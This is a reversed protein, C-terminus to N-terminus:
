KRHIKVVPNKFRLDIYKAKEKRQALDNLISKLKRIEENKNGKENLLLKTNELQVVFFTSEKKIASVSLDAEQFVKLAELAETLGKEWSEKKSEPSGLGLVRPLSLYAFSKPMVFGEEDVPYIKGKDEFIAVPKREKIKVEMKGSFFHRRIIVEKVQPYSKLHKKIESTDIQFLNKGMASQTFGELTKEDLSTFGQLSVERVQFFSSTHLFDEAKKVGFALSGVILFSLYLKGLGKLIKKTKKNKKIKGKKPM